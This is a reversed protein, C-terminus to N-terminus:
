GSQVSIATTPAKAVGATRAHKAGKAGPCSRSDAAPNMNTREHTGQRDAFRHRPSRLEGDLRSPALCQERSPAGSRDCDGAPQLDLLKM